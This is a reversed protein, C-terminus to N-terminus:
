AAPVKMTLYPQKAQDPPTPGPVKHDVAPQSKLYAAIAAADEPTLQGYAHWPMIPALVRGDPREGKTFATILQAETWAAIGTEHPTLNPPYVVGFGPIEFGEDSGSLPDAPKAQGTLAGPKHCGACDMVAVLYRGRALPDQPAAAATTEPAKEAAPTCASLLLVSLAAAGIQSPKM